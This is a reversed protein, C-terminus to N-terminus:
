LLALNLPKAARARDGYVNPEDGGGIAVEGLHDGVFLKAAIEKVPEFDKRDERRRQALAGGVNGDQHAM